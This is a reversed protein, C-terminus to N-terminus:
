SLRSKMFRPLCFSAHHISPTYYRLDTLAKYHKLDIDEPGHKKSCFNFGITGSPYTPVLTYYYSTEKYIDPLFQFIKRIFDSHYYFSECQNVAIGEDRLINHINQFYKKQFLVTAPGIPDSSDTIIVDYTHQRHAVFQAGDEYFITVRPDDLRSAVFPLYKKSVEVVKKDIECLHVEEVLPHKLVERVTGGDGGGIVLVRRPHPHVCLPVHAIMEHYAFEDFETLMIIGDLVLMKGMGATELVAIEQFDSKFHCLTSKIRIRLSSELGIGDNEEFWLNMDPRKTLQPFGSGPPEITSHPM